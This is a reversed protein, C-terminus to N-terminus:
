STKKIQRWLFYKRKPFKEFIKHKINVVFIKNPCMRNASFEFNARM